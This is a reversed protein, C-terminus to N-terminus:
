ILNHLAELLGSASSAFQAKGLQIEDGFYQLAIESVFITKVGVNAADFFVASWGTVHVSSSLLLPYL